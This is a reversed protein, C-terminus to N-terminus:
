NMSRDLDIIIGVQNSVWDTNGIKLDILTFISGFSNPCQHTLLKIREICSKVKCDPRWNMRLSTDLKWHVSSAWGLVPIQNM